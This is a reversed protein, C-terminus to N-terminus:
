ALGTLKFFGHLISAALISTAFIIGTIKLTSSIGAERVLTFLSSICPTYIVLFISAIIFQYANLSLPSLLAISVDKRLFGLLMVPAIEPPLGLLIRVPAKIVETVFSIVKLADLINIILVGAAIMPLVEGFYDAIRIWLKRMMLKFSPLQYSPLETIFEPMEGKMVKNIAINMVFALVLLIIFVSFVVAMGYHLGLSIIMSSQPLCPTSMLILSITLIKERKNNLVRTAMLAPVKCGLGLMVPISSYGHLGLKHFIRDLVVALRPLYGFDELFGFVLYFSFFYPFVLVIAIYVGSTLIGFSKLPDATTGFLLRKVLESPIGNSLKLMFPDYFKTFLPDLVENTLGEGFFRVISLVAVLVVFATVIGGIPHLSFDSLRELFTHHRHELKQVRAIIEGIRNWKDDLSCLTKSSQAKEVADLLEHMGEDRLASVPIVPVGLLEELSAADIKIGKHKTDEWFNLCIVMPKCKMLLQLTLSLNRELNTADLINILIDGEEIIKLAVEDAQSFEELSYVGPGDVLEYETDRYRFRGAKTDVTTGGYNATIAAKGTIRSFILSKGVNPNGVLVVKKM